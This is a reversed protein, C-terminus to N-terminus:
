PVEIYEPWIIHGPQIGFYNGLFKRIQGKNLPKGSPFEFTKYNWNYDVKVTLTIKEAKGPYHKHIARLEVM